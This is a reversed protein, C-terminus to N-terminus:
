LSKFNNKNQDLTSSYTKPFNIKDESSLQKAVASIKGNTELIIVEVQSLTSIGMQRMSALMEDETVRSKHMSETIFQGNHYLLVPTATVLSKINKNKLTFKTILYQMGVLLSLASVTDALTVDKQLLGSSFTSGMAITIIFDFSNMQSLTRNGSIRLIFILGAYSLVGVTIIRLISDWSSFFMM